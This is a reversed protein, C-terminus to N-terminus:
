LNKFWNNIFSKYNGLNMLNFIDKFVLPTKNINKELLKMSMLHKQSMLHKHKSLFIEYGKKIRNESGSIRENTHSIDFVYLPDKIKLCKGYKQLLRVWMDYDQFSPLNEDFGGVAKMRDTKTLVQNGIKNYHLVDNLTLIGVGEKIVRTKDHTRRYYSSCVFAFDDNYAAMMLEVRQPLFYDDDDLGTIFDGKAAAIAKNRSVCAGQTTENRLYVLNSHLKVYSELLSQTADTSADDCVIVELNTWTQNIVSQIARDLLIHRNRTTIYVSVLPTNTM